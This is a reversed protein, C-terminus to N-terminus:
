GGFSSIPPGFLEENVDIGLGPGQPVAIHGDVIEIGGNPDYHGEIYPAALWVGELLKPNVTAGIHTCAAAIIDGGWSDDCTHPLNRSACIDRFAAMKQLGSIRTVKMG